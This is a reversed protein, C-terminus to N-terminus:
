ILFDSRVSPTKPVGWRRGLECLRVLFEKKGGVKQKQTGDATEDPTGPITSSVGPVGWGVGPSIDLM